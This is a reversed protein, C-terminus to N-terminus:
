VANRHTRLPDADPGGPPENKLVPGLHGSPILPILVDPVALHNVGGPQGARSAQSDALGVSRGDSPHGVINPRCSEQGQWRVGSRHPPRVNLLGAWKAFVRDTLLM